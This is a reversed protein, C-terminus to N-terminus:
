WTWFNLEYSEYGFGFGDLVIFLDNNTFSHYPIPVELLTLEGEEGVFTGLLQFNGTEKGFEDYITQYLTIRPVIIGDLELRVNLLLEEDGLAPALFFYFYDRDDAVLALHGGISQSAFHPLVTIFNADDFTDNPEWEEYDYTPPPPPENDGDNNTVSDGGCSFLLLTLLYTLNKIM